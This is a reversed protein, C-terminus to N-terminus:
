PLASNTRPSSITSPSPIPLLHPRPAQAQQPPHTPLIHQQQLAKAPTSPNHLHLQSAESQIAQHKPDNKEYYRIFTLPIVSYIQVYRVDQRSLNAARRAKAQALAYPDQHRRKQAVTSAQRASVNSSLRQVPSYLKLAGFADVLDIRPPM